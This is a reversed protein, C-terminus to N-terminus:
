ASRTEVPIGEGMEDAIRTYRLRVLDDKGPLDHTLEYAPRLEMLRRMTECLAAALERSWFCWPTTDEEGEHSLHLETLDAPVLRVVLWAPEGHHAGPMISFSLDGNGEQAHHYDEHGLFYGFAHMLETVDWVDPDAPLGLRISILQTFRGSGGPAIEETTYAVNLTLEEEDERRLNMTVRRILVGNALLM